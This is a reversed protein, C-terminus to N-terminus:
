NGSGRDASNRRVRQRRKLEHVQGQYRKAAELPQAHIYYRETTKLTSHALVSKAIYVHEPDGTAISTAACDRFLHPCISRGFKERTLAIIRAYITTPPITARGTLV